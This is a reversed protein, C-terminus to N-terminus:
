DDTLAVFPSITSTGDVLNIPATLCPKGDSHTTFRWTTQNNVFKYHISSDIMIGGANVISYYSRDILLVDGETNLYPLKESVFVPRGLLTMPAQMAANTVLINNTGDGMQLLKPLRPWTSIYLNSMLM